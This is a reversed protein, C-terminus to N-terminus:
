HVAPVQEGLGPLYILFCFSSQSHEWLEWRTGVCGSSAALLAMTAVRQRNKGEGLLGRRM